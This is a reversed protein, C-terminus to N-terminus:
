YSLHQKQSTSLEGVIFAKVNLLLPTKLDDLFAQFFEKTIGDNELLKNNLM